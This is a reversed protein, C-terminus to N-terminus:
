YEFQLLCCCFGGATSGEYRTHTGKVVVAASHPVGYPYTTLQAKTGGGGRARARRKREWALSEVTLPQTNMWSAATHKTNGARTRKRRTQQKVLGETKAGRTERELSPPPETSAAVGM